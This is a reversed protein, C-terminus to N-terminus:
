LRTTLIFRREADTVINELLSLHCRLLDVAPTSSWQPDTFHFTERLATHDARQVSERQRRDRQRRQRRENWWQRLPYTLDEILIRLPRRYWPRGRKVVAQVSAEVFGTASIEVCVNKQVGLPGEKLVYNRQETFYSCLADRRMRDQWGQYWLDFGDQHRLEKQLHLTVSRAFVIAAELFHCFAERDTAGAEEARSLFFAAQALTRRATTQLSNTM